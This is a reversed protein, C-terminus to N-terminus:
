CGTTDLLLSFAVGSEFTYNNTNGVFETGSHIVASRDYGATRATWQNYSGRPEGVIQGLEDIRSGAAGTFDGTLVFVGDARQSLQPEVGAAPDGAITARSGIRYEPRALYVVEKGRHQLPSGLYYNREWAEPGPDSDTFEQGNSGTTAAFGPGTPNPAWASTLSRTTNGFNQLLLSGCSVTNLDIYSQQWAVYRSPAGGSPAISYLRHYGASAVIGPVSWFTATPQAGNVQV